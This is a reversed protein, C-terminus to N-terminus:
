IRYFRINIVERGLISASDEDPSSIPSSLSAKPFLAVVALFVFTISIIPGALTNMKHFYQKYNVNLINLFNLKILSICRFQTRSKNHGFLMLVYGYKIM